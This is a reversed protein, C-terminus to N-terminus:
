FFALKCKESVKSRNPLSILVLAALAKLAPNFAAVVLVLQGVVMLQCRRNIRHQPQAVADDDVLVNWRQRRQVHPQAVIVHLIGRGAHRAPVLHM